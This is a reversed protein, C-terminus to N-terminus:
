PERRQAGPTACATTAFAGTEVTPTAACACRLGLERRSSPFCKRKWGNGCRVWTAFRFYESQDHTAEGQRARQRQRRHNPEVGDGARVDRQDRRPGGCVAGEGGTRRANAELEAFRHLRRHCMDNEDAGVATRRRQRERVIRVVHVDDDARRRGEASARIADLPVHQGLVTMGDAAAEDERDADCGRWWRRRRGREHLRRPARRDGARRENWRHKAAQADARERRQRAQQEKQHGRAGTELRTGSADREPERDDRREQEASMQKRPRDVGRRIISERALPQRGREARPRSAGLQPARTKRQQREPRQHERAAATEREDSRHRREHQRGRHSM